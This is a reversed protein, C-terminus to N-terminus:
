INFYKKIYKLKLPRHLHDFGGHGFGGYIYLLKSTKIKEYAKYFYKPPCVDDDFGVASFVPCNIKDVLNVLDFYGLDCYIRNLDIEPYKSKLDNIADYKGNHYIVREKLACGSPIDPICLAIDNTLSTVALAMEGGQSGGLAILPVSHFDSFVEISEDKILNILKVGDLYLRKCYNTELNDIGQNIYYENNYTLENNDITHGGQNRADFIVVSFNEKVWGLCDDKTWEKDMPSLSGHFFVILPMKKSVSETSYYLRTYIKTNNVSDFSFDIKKGYNTNESSLITVKNKVQKVEELWKNWKNNLDEPCNKEIKTKIFEEIM